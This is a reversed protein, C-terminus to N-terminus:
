DMQGSAWYPGEYEEAMEPIWPRDKGSGTPLLRHFSSGGAIGMEYYLLEAGNLESM